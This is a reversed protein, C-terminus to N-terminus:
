RSAQQYLAFAIWLGLLGLGAALLAARFQPLYIEGNAIYNRAKVNEFWPRNLCDKLRPLGKSDQLDKHFTSLRWSVALLWAVAAITLTGAIIVAIMFGNEKPTRSGLPDRM